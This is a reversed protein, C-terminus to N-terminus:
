SNVAIASIENIARFRRCLRELEAHVAQTDNPTFHKLPRVILDIPLWQVQQVRFYERIVRKMYNRQNARKHVKKSVMCGLRSYALSNPKYHLKFYSGHCVKRFVFVSSFEDTKHLRYASLFHYM